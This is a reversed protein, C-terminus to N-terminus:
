DSDIEVPLGLGGKQQSGDKRHLSEEQEEWCVEKSVPSERHAAARQAAAPLRWCRTHFLGGKLRVGTAHAPRIHLAGQM